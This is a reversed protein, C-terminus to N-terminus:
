LFKVSINIHKLSDKELVFFGNGYKYKTTWNEKIYPVFYDFRTVSWGHQKFKNTWWEKTQIQIHSPDYHYEPIVFNNDLNGLPIVHFMKGAYKYAESLLHDIAVETMHELVDKTILWDYSNNLFISKQNEEICFCFKKVDSDVNSIAYKSIDCGYADIGLIRMAKVLYGKACGYDLVTTQKELKLHKQIGDALELTMEPMWKYDVYCSKNTELGNEYYDEDYFDKDYM